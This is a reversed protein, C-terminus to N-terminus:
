LEARHLGLERLTTPGAARRYARPGASRRGDGPVRGAGRHGNGETAPSDPAPFTDSSPVGAMGSAAVRSAAAKEPAPAAGPVPGASGPTAAAPGFVSRARRRKGNRGRRRRAPGSTRDLEAILQDVRGKLRKEATAAAGTATRQGLVWGFFCGSRAPRDAAVRRHPHRDGVRCGGQPSPAETACRVRATRFLYSGLRVRGGAGRPISAGRFARRARRRGQRGSMASQRRPTLRAPAMEARGPVPVFQLIGANRESRRPRDRRISGVVRSAAAHKLFETGEDGAAIHDVRATAMMM